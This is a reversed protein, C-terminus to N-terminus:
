AAAPRRGSAESRQIRSDLEALYFNQFADIAAPTVKVSEM